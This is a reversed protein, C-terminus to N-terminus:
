EALQANQGVDFKLEAPMIPRVKLVRVQDHEVRGDPKVIWKNVLNALRPNRSGALNFQEPLQVGSAHDADCATVTLRRCCGQNM